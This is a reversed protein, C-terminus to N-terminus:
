IAGHSTAETKFIFDKMVPPRGTEDINFDVFDKSFQWYRKMGSVHRFRKQISPGILVGKKLLEKALNERQRDAGQERLFERILTSPILVRNKAADYYGHKPDSVQDPDSYIQANGALYDGLSESLTGIETEPDQAIKQGIEEWYNGIEEWDIRTARLREGFANWWKTNLVTPNIGAMEESTFQLTKGSIRVETTTHEGFYVRVWETEEIIRSVVPSTLARKQEPNQELTEHLQVCVNRFKTQYIEKEPRTEPDLLNHSASIINAQIKPSLWPATKCTEIYATRDHDLIKVQYGDNTRALQLSIAGIIPITPESM